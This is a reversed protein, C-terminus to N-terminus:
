RFTAGHFRLVLRMLVEWRESVRREAPAEMTAHAAGTKASSHVTVPRTGQPWDPDGNRGGPGAMSSGALLAIGLLSLFMTRLARSM